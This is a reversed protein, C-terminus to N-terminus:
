TSTMFQTWRTCSYDKWILYTLIKNTTPISIGNIWMWQNRFAYAYLVTDYPQISQYIVVNWAPAYLSNLRTSIAQAIANVETDTNASSVPNNDINFHIVGMVTDNMTGTGQWDRQQTPTTIALLVLLASLIRYSKFGM